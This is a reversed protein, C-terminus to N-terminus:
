SEKWLKASTPLGNTLCVFNIWAKPGAQMWSPDSAAWNIGWDPLTDRPVSGGETKELYGEALPM